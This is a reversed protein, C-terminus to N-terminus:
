VVFYMLLVFVYRMNDMGTKDDENDAKEENVVSTKSDSDQDGKSCNGDESSPTTSCLESYSKLDNLITESAVGSIIGSGKSVQSDLVPWNYNKDNSVDEHKICQVSHPEGRQTSCNSTCDVDERKGQNAYSFSKNGNQISSVSDVRPKEEEYEVSSEESNFQDGHDIPEELVDVEVKIRVFEFQTDM